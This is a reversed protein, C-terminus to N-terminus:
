KEWLKIIKQTGFLEYDKLKQTAMFLMNPTTSTLKLTTGFFSYFTVNSFDLVFGGQMDFLSELIRKDSEKITAM